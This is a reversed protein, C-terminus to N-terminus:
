LNTNAFPGHLRRAEADYARAAQIPDAFDGIWKVRGDACIAARYRGSAKVMHVGKLGLKNDRHAARNRQNEAETCERLNEIRNDVKNGNAHDIREPWRGHHWLWVLRHIKYERGRVTIRMYGQSTLSGAKKGASVRPGNRVTWYLCGDRYDFTERINQPTIM